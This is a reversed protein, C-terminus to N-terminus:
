RLDLFVPALRDKPKARGRPDALEGALPRKVLRPTKPLTTANFAFQQTAEIAISVIL